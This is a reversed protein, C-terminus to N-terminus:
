PSYYHDSGLPVSVLIAGFLLVMSSRTVMASPVLYCARGQEQTRQIFVFNQRFQCSGM